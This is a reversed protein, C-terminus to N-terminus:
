AAKRQAYMAARAKSARKAKARAKLQKPTKIRVKHKLAKLEKVTRRRRTPIYGAGSATAADAQTKGFFSGIFTKITNLLHKFM